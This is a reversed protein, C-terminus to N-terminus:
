TTFPKLRTELELYANELDKKDKDIASGSRGEDHVLGAHELLIQAAEPTGASEMGISEIVKLMHLLVEANDCSAHRIMNFSTNFLEDIHVPELLVRCNGESDLLEPSQEGQNIVMTLGHGIYDLCTKATFPDNIAPSMARVAMEVLQKFAYEIDQSVTRQDGVRFARRILREPQEKVRDSPWIRAVEMGKHIFDGPKCLLRLYLDREEAITLISSLDIYQLYGMRDLRVAHGDMGDFIENGDGESQFNGDDGEGVEDPARALIIKTLKAAAAAAINPAQLMTSIHQILVILSAFTILTLYLGM